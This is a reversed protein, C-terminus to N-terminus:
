EDARLLGLTIAHRVLGSTDHIDLKQM